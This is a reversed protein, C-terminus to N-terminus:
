NLIAVGITLYTAFLIWILYPILLNSALRNIRRFFVICLFVVIDLILIIISGWIYHENFFVISWIFNLLLQLWFLISSVTKVRKPARNSFIILYGAVAILFYLISWVIGFVYDPPSLPPLNLVNYKLKINGAFASSLSGLLEVIVIFIILSFIGKKIGLKEM